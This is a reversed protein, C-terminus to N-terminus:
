LTLRATWLAAAYGGIKPGKSVGM